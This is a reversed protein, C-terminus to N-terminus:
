WRCSQRRRGARPIVELHSVVSEPEHVMMAKQQMPSLHAPKLDLALRPPNHQQKVQVQPPVGATQLSVILPKALTDLTIRTIM